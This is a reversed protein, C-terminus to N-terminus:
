KFYGGMGIAKNLSAIALYIDGLASGYSSKEGSLKIKADMVESVTAENLEKRVQTAMLEKEYLKLNNLSGKIKIQAEALSYFAERVESHIVRKIDQLDSLAQQHAIYATKVSTYRGLDDFPTIKYMDTNYRTDSGFTTVTPALKGRKHAFDFTHSEFPFSATIGLFRENRLNWGFARPEFEEAAKVYKGVLDLQPWTQSQAIREGLKTSKVILKKTKLEARHQMALEICGDIDMDFEKLELKYDIKVESSIDINMVKNLALRKLLVDNESSAISYYVQDYSSQANLFELQTSLDLEYEKQALELDSKISKFLEKQTDLNNLAKALGYYAKSADYILDEKTKDYNEQAINLNTRAQQWTFLLEGGRFLPQKFEFGYKRGRYLSDNIKGRSESWLLSVAPFLERFSENVKLKALEIQEKAIKIPLHNDLAIKICEELTLEKTLDLAVPIEEGIKELAEKRIEEKKEPKKKESIEKEKIVPPIKEPEEKALGTLFSKELPALVIEKKPKEEVSEEVLEQEEKEEAVEKELEKAAKFEEELPKVAVTTTQGIDLLISTGEKIVEYSVSERLEITLFDFTYYVKRPDEPEERTKIFEISKILGEEFYVKDEYDCYVEELPDIVIRYPEKLEYSICEIYANMIIALRARDQFSQYQIDRIMFGTLLSNKAGDEDVFNRSELPAFLGAPEIALAFASNICCFIIIALSIKKM